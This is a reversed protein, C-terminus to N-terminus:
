QANDIGNNLDHLSKVHLSKLLNEAFYADTHKYTM